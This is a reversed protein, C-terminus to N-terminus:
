SYKKDSVIEQGSLIKKKANCDLQKKVKVRLILM